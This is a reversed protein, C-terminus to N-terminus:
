PGSIQGLVEKPHSPNNKFHEKTSKILNEQPMQSLGWVEEDVMFNSM